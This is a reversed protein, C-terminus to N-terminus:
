SVEGKWTRDPLELNALMMALWQIDRDRQMQAGRGGPLPQNLLTRMETCVTTFTRAGETM